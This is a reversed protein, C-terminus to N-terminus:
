LLAFFKSNQKCVPLSIEACACQDESQAAEKNHFVVFALAMVNAINRAEIM